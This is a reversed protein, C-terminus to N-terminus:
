RKSNSIKIKEKLENIEKQKKSLSDELFQIKKDKDIIKESLINKYKIANKYKKELSKIDKNEKKDDNVKNNAKGASKARKIDNLVRETLYKQKNINDLTKKLIENKEKLNNKEKTLNEIETRMRLNKCSNNLNNNLKINNIRDNNLKMIKIENDLINKQKQYTDREKILHEHDDQLGILKEKNLKYEKNIHKKQYELILLKGKM